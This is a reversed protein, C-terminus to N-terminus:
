KINNTYNTIFEIRYLLSEWERLTLLYGAPHSLEEIAASRIAQRNLGYLSVMFIILDANNM